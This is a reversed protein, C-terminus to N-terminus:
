RPMAALTGLQVTYMVWAMTPFFNLTCLLATKENTFEPQYLEGLFTTKLFKYELSAKDKGVNAYHDQGDQVGVLPLLGEHDQVQDQAHDEVCEPGNEPSCVRLIEGVLTAM